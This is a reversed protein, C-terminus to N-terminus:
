ANLKFHQFQIDDKAAQPLADFHEGLFKAVQDMPIFLSGNQEHAQIFRGSRQTVNYLTQDSFIGILQEGKFVPGGSQGPNGASDTRFRIYKMGEIYVEADKSSLRGTTAVVNYDSGPCGVMCIHDGINVNTDGFRIPVVEKKLVDPQLIAIDSATTKHLLTAKSKFHPPHQQTIFIDATDNDARLVHACTIILGSSHIFFGTGNGLHKKTGKEFLHIKVVSQFAREPWNAM